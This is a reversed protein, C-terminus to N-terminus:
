IYLDGLVGKPSPRVGGESSANSKELSSSVDRKEFRSTVVVDGVGAGLFSGSALAATM